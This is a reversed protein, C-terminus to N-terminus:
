SIYKKYLLETSAMIMCWDHLDSTVNLSNDVEQMTHSFWISNNVDPSIKATLLYFHKIFFLFMKHSSVEYFLVNLRMLIKNNKLFFHLPVSHVEFSM